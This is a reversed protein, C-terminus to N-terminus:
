ILFASDIILSISGDGLITVGSIFKYDSLYKSVSKIVIEQQAFVKDVIIGVFKDGKKIILIDFKDNKEGHIGLKENLRILPIIESNYQFMEKDRIHKIKADDAEIIEIVSQIPIAFTESNVKILLAEIMSLTLPFRLLTTSGKGKESMVEIDGGLEEVKSKVVDLGVGRGSIDSVTDSTSFGPLFLIDIIQKENLNKAEEETILKREIAKSLIKKTDMGKGDDSVEIVVKNGDHYAKININGTKDKGSAVREEPMEIGHDMSNRLLHVLPDSLEDIITMDVETNEGIINFNVTKNLKISLDRIMRPFRSFVKSIPEMRLSMVKDHLDATIRDLYTLTQKMNSDTKEGIYTNLRAKTIILESVLNMMDDLSNVDVRVTKNLKIKQISGQKKSERKLESIDANEVESITKIYKKIEDDAFKTIIIFKLNDEYKGNKLSEVDPTIGILKGYQSLENIVTYARAAKLVCEDSLRVEVSFVNLGNEIAKDIESGHNEKAAKKQAPREADKVKKKVIGDLVGGIEVDGEGGTTKINNMMNELLDMCKFLSSILENEIKIEKNKIGQFVDEMNHTLASMKNYGMSAAMGKLTHASRFIENIIKESQNKELDLINQNLSEIHEESEDIFMQLYETDM